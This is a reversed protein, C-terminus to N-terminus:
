GGIFEFITMQRYIRYKEPRGLPFVSEMRPSEPDVMFDNEVEPPIRTEYEKPLEVGEAENLERMLRKFYIIHNRVLNMNCGDSWFPDNCGNENIRKWREASDTIKRALERMEAAPKRDKAKM